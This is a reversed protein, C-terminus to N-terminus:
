AIVQGTAGDTMEARNDGGEPFHCAAQHGPEIAELEPVATACKDQAKWCRTRFPCGSPVDLPSPVDGTLTIRRRAREEDPDPLPVASLLARTYPHAPAKYIQAAKGIEVIKGLYMVAVRDSVHRVVALDHAIFVYAIGLKEQLEELLNLVGAQVSVDLASVPEDLVLVEPDLALARAIGVRQRQGGSLEHPYRDGHEPALRVLDLLEAARAHAPAGTLGILRLPEAIIDRIRMRPHLSALPDQFVIQLHRRFGRMEAATLSALNTGKFSVAGSTPEILRLLCRGLTSKGCGSEGVLGLTEGKALQFSVGGVAKVKRVPSWGFLGGRVVFDKTLDSVSMIPEDAKTEISVPVTM